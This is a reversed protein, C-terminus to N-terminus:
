DKRRVIYNMILNENRFGHAKGCDNCYVALMWGCNWEETFKLTNHPCCYICAKFVAASTEGCTKCVANGKEDCTEAWAPVDYTM